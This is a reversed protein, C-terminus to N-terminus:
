RLGWGFDLALRETHSLQMVQSSSARVRRPPFRRRAGEGGRAAAGESRYGRGRRFALVAITGSKGGRGSGGEGAPSRRPGAGLTLKTESPQGLASTSLSRM